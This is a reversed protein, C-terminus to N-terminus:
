RFMKLKLNAAEICALDAWLHELQDKGLVVVDDIYVLCDTWKLGALVMSFRRQFNSSVSRLDFPM